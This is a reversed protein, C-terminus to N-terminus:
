NPCFKSKPFPIKIKFYKAHCVLLVCVLETHLDIQLDM